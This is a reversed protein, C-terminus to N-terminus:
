LSNQLSRVQSRSINIPISRGVSEIDVILRQKGNFSVLRGVLGKMEGYVIEVLQGEQLNQLEDLDSTGDNEGVFQRVAVIQNYPVPVPKGEFGIFRVVGPTNLIDYYNKLDTRVFIYSKFLPEEVMKKRDSWQKLRNLLPLYVEIHRDELLKSTKKEYRSKVYVAYWRAITKEAM